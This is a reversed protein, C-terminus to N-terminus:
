PHHQAGQDIEKRWGEDEARLQQLRLEVERWFRISQTVFDIGPVLELVTLNLSRIQSASYGEVEGARCESKETHIRQLWRAHRAVNELARRRANLTLHLKSPEGTSTSPPADFVRSPVLTVNSVLFCDQTERGPAMEGGARHRFHPVWVLQLQALDELLIDLQVKEVVDSIRASGALPLAFARTVAKDAREVKLRSTGFFQFAKGAAFQSTKPGAGAAELSALDVFLRVAIEEGEVISCAAKEAAYERYFSRLKEIKSWEPLAPKGAGGRILGLDAEIM